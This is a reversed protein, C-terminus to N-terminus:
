PSPMEILAHRRLAEVYDDLANEGARRKAFERVQDKVEDFPPVAGPEKADVVLVSVGASSRVPDSVGGPDLGLVVATATSGLYQRLENPTLSGTPLPIVPADALDAAVADFPEGAALRTHAKEARAPAPASPHAASGDRFLLQRVTTRGPRRFFEPESAYLSRLEDDTPSKAGAERVISDVLAQIAEKRALFEKRPLGLAEARQFLLEDSIARRITAALLDSTPDRHGALDPREASVAEFLKDVSSRPVAVGNVIALAPEADPPPLLPPIRPGGFLGVGTLVLGGLTGLLLFTRERNAISRQPQSPGCGELRSM